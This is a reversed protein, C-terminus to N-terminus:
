VQNQNNKTEKDRFDEDSNSQELTSIISDMKSLIEKGGDEKKEERALQQAAAQIDSGSTLGGLGLRSAEQSARIKEAAAQAKALATEEASLVGRKREEEQVGFQNEQQKLNLGAQELAFKERALRLAEDASTGDDQLRTAEEQIARQRELFEAEDERGSLRLRNLRNEFRLASAQGGSDDSSENQAIQDGLEFRRQVAAAAETESAGAKVLQAVEKAIELKREEAKAEAERGDARLQAIQNQVRLEELAATSRGEAEKRQEEAAQERLKEFDAEAQSFAGESAENVEEQPRGRLDNLKALAEDATTRLEEAAALYADKETQSITDDTIVGAAQKSARIFKANAEVFDAQAEEILPALTKIEEFGARISDGTVSFNLSDELEAFQQLLSEDVLGNFDLAEDRKAIIADFNDLTDQVASGELSFIIPDRGAFKLAANIPKLVSNSISVGFDSAGQILNRFATLLAREFGIAGAQLALFERLLVIPVQQFKIFGSRLFNIADVGLAAGGVLKDIFQATLEGVKDQEVGLGTLEATIAQLLPTIEDAIPEGFSIKLGEYASKLRETTGILGELRKEAQAESNALSNLRQALEVGAEGATALAAAFNKGRTGFLATLASIREQDSLGALGDQLQQAIVSFDRLNGSADFFDVALKKAANGAANAAFNTQAFGTTLRDIFVKYATGAQQGGAFFSATAAITANFEDFSQGAIVASAGGSALAQQYDTFGFKSNILVGNISDVAARAQEAELGFVKLADTVTDAAAPLTAGTSAALLLSSELVGGLIQQTTIGNKALVEVAAASERATFKTERGLRQTEETLLVMEAATPQLVAEVGKLIKEFEGFTKVSDTAQQRLVRTVDILGRGALAVGGLAGAAVTTRKVFQNTKRIARDFEARLQASDADLITTIRQTM